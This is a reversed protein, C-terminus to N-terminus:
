KRSRRLSLLGGLAVLLLLAGGSRESGSGPAARCTCGGAGTALVFLDETPGGDPVDTGGSVCTGDECHSGEPCTVALCPDDECRGTSPDCRRGAPCTVGTCEGSCEGTEPDCQEGGTCTV